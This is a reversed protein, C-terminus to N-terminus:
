NRYSFHLTWRSTLKTRYLGRLLLCGLGV